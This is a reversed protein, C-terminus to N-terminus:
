SRARSQTASCQQRTGITVVAFSTYTRKRGKATVPPSARSPGSRLTLPRETGALSRANDALLLCEYESLMANLVALEAGLGAGDRNLAASARIRTVLTLTLPSDVGLWHTRVRMADRPIRRGLLSRSEFTAMRNRM